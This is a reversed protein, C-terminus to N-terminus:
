ITNLIGSDSYGSAISKMKARLIDEQEWDMSAAAQLETEKNRYDRKLAELQQAAGAIKTLLAHQDNGKIILPRGVESLFYTWHNTTTATAKNFSYIDKTFIWFNTQRMTRNKKRRLAFGVGSM